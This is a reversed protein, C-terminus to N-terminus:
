ERVTEFVFVRLCLATVFDDCCIITATGHSKYRGRGAPSPVVESGIVVM